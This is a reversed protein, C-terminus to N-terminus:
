VAKFAGSINIPTGNGVLYSYDSMNSYNGYYWEWPDVGPVCPCCPYKEAVLTYVPIYDYIAWILLAIMIFFAMNEFLRLWKNAKPKWYNWDSIGM